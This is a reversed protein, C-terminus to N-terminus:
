INILKLKEDRTMRKIEAERARMDAFTACEELYSLTVPRRARTYKAGQKTNNHKHLRNEIDTTSGCYLTNDSCTLIYVFFSM